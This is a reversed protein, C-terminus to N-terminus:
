PAEFGSAFIADAKPVRMIAGGLGVTIIHDGSSAIASFFAASDTFDLTWVLGDSSRLGIGFGGVAVFENGTWVM